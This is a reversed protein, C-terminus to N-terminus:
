KYTCIKMREGDVTVYHCIENQNVALIVWVMLLFGTIIFMVKLEIDQKRKYM